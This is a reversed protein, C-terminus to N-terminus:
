KVGLGKAAQAFANSVTAALDDSMANLHGRSNVRLETLAEPTECRAADGILDNAKAEQPDIENGAADYHAEGMDADARGPQDDAVPESSSPTPGAAEARPPNDSDTPQIPTLEIKRANFEREVESWLPQKSYTRWVSRLDELSKAADIDARAKEPGALQGFDAKLPLIKTVARKGKTATLALVLDRDIHSMHSIRIGGVAMGGWQVTPDRYLTVSRGTYAKADPGWASVLVRSMSKCPRWPKGNDGDFFISVPQETGARIDIERIRITRPGAILDDANIQDSKPVIVATMDNM